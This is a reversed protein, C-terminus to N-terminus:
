IVITKKDIGEVLYAKSLKTDGTVVLPAWLIHDACTHKILTHVTFCDIM